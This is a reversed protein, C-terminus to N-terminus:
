HCGIGKGRAKLEADAQQKWYEQKWRNFAAREDATLGGGKKKGFPHQGPNTHPKDHHKAPMAVMPGNPNQKYHHLVITNGQKDVGSLGFGKGNLANNNAHYLSELQADSMHGLNTYGSVQLTLGKSDTFTIPNSSLGFEDVWTNPDHVYAYVNMGGQISIPDQNIYGGSENDYYRFRNYALGTESDVSQGQYLYPCFDKEGDLKRVKGYCDIEREWVKQGASNYAHTPTGLYDAVISYENDNEIKACPVFSGDEFVWTILNEVPEKIEIIQGNEDISSQPPYGGEYKWEHLPVNGDWVWRTIVGAGDRGGGFPSSFVVKAIRRGLPDYSFVVSKGGPNIVQRLMGNGAWEYAWGTQSAKLKIGIAEAYLAKDKAHENSNHKFEKFIVNGEADYHYFYKEDEMLRGGKSYKRDSKEKTKFLNGIKDPVRYITETTGKEDYAASILNDFAMLLILVM